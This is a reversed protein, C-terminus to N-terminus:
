AAFIRGDVECTYDIIPHQRLHVVDDSRRIYTGFGLAWERLAKMRHKYDILDVNGLWGFSAGIHLRGKSNGEVASLMNHNHGIVSNDQLSHMSQRASLPGSYGMDHTFFMEGVAIGNMYPIYEWGNFHQQWWEMVIEYFEPAKSSVMKPLRKEHNGEIFIFRKFPLQRLYRLLKFGPRLESLLGKLRRPDKVFTSLIYNDFWDGLIILTDWAFAPIVKKILLKVLARKDHYPTHADPIILGRELPEFTGALQTRVSTLSQVGQNPLWLSPSSVGDPRRQQKLLKSM